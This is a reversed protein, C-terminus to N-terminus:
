ISIYIYINICKNYVCTTYTFIRTSEYTHNGPTAAGGGESLWVKQYQDAAMEMLAGHCSSGPCEEIGGM